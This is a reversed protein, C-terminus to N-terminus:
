FMKLAPRGIRSRETGLSRDRVNLALSHLAGPHLCVACVEDRTAIYGCLQYWKGIGQCNSCRICCPAGHQLQVHTMFAYRTACAKHLPPAKWLPPTKWSQKSDISDIDFTNVVYM